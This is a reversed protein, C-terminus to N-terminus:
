DTYLILEQGVANEVLFDHALDGRQAIIRKDMVDSVKKIKSDNRVFVAYTSIFHPVSFDVSKDREETRYMGMVIDVEGTEISDRVDVWPYMSIHVTLDMAKAVARMIEVNFGDPEGQENLFEYPPYSYDGVAQIVSDQFRTVHTYRFLSSLSSDEVSQAASNLLMATLSMIVVFLWRKLFRRKVASLVETLAAIFLTQSIPISFYNAVSKMKVEISMIFQRTFYSFFLFLKELCDYNM